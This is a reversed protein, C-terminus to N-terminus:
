PFCKRNMKEFFTFIEHLIFGFVFGGGMRHHASAKEIKDKECVGVSHNGLDM